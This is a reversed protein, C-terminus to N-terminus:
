TVGTHRVQEPSCEKVGTAEKVPAGSRQVSSASEDPSRCEGEQILYTSSM